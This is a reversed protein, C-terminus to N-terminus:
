AASEALSRSPSSQSARLASPAALWLLWLMGVLRHYGLPFVDFTPMALMAFLGAAVGLPRDRGLLAVALIALPLAMVYHHEWVSPSVLLGFALADAAHAALCRADFAVDGARERRMREREFLRQGAWLAFGLVGIRVGWVVFPGSAQSGTAFRSLNFFVSHLSNNRFAIEGPFDEGLLTAYQSWIGAGGLGVSLAAVACSAALTWVVVRLRGAVLWPGLLILPYLKIHGALAVAIGALAPRKRAAVIGLLSLDLLWLNVQGHRLTRFVANDFVLLGGLLLPVWAAVLGCHRAFSLGLFYAGLVLLVQLCQYLYFVRDWVLDRENSGGLAVSVRAVAEHAVAFAQATLPPYLYILGKEYPSEGALLARGAYEYCDYDFRRQAYESTWTVFHLALLAPVLVRIWAQPAERMRSFAHLAIGASALGGTLGLLEFPLFSTGYSMSVFSPHWAAILLPLLIALVIVLAYAGVRILSAEGSSSRMASQYVQDLATLRPPEPKM